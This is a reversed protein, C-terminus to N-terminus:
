IQIWWYRDNKRAERPTCAWVAIDGGAEDPSRALIKGACRECILM